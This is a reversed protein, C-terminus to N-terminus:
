GASNGSAKEGRDAEAVIAALVEREAAGPLHGALSAELVTTGHQNTLVAHGKARGRGDVETVTLRCTITDGFFVPRLFRLGMGSALWGIQGGVETVLSAVLLGHCILGNLKKAGAFRSDYHIPNYDRTLDGFARTEEETFTRTATSITAPSWAESRGAGSKRCRAGLKQGPCAARVVIWPLPLIGAHPRSRLHQWSLRASGAPGPM